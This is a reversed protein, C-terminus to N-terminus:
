VLHIIVIDEEIKREDPKTSGYYKVETKKNGFIFQLIKNRRKESKFLAYELHGPDPYGVDVIYEDFYIKYEKMKTSQQIKKRGSTQISTSINM